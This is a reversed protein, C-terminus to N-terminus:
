SNAWRCVLLGNCSKTQNKKFLFIGTPICPIASKVESLVKTPMPLHLFRFLTVRWRNPARNSSAGNISLRFCLFEEPTVRSYFIVLIVRQFNLEVNYSSRQTREQNEKTPSTLPQPARLRLRLPASRPAKQRELLWQLVSRPPFGFYQPFGCREEGM